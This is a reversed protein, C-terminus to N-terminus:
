PRSQLESTHEESGAPFLLSSFLEEFEKNSIKPDSIINKRNKKIIKTNETDNLNNENKNDNNIDIDINIESDNIDYYIPLSSYYYGIERAISRFCAMEEEWNTETVLRLLFMPLGLPDPIYDSLLDPLTCLYGEKNIGIKFYEQLMESNKILTAVIRDAFVERSDILM